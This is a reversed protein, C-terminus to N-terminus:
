QFEAKQKEAKESNKEARLATTKKQMTM